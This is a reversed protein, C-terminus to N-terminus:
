LCWLISCAPERKGGQREEREKGREKGEGEEREGEGGRENAQEPSPSGTRFGLDSNLVQTM